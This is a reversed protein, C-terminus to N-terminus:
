VYPLTQDTTRTNYSLFDGRQVGVSASRSVVLVGTCECANCPKNASKRHARLRWPKFLCGAPGALRPHQQSTPYLKTQEMTKVREQTMRKTRRRRKTTWKELLFFPSTPIWLASAQPNSLTDKDRKLFSTCYLPTEIGRTWTRLSRSVSVLLCSYALLSWVVTAQSPVLVGM